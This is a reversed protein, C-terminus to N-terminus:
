EIYNKLAEFYNASKVHHAKGNDDYYCLWGQMYNDFTALYTDTGYIIQGTKTRDNILSNLSDAQMIKQAITSDAKMSNWIFSSSEDNILKKVEDVPAISTMVNILEETKNIEKGYILQTDSKKLKAITSYKDKKRIRECNWLYINPIKKLSKLSEKITFSYEMIFFDSESGLYEVNGIYFLTDIAVLEGLLVYDNEDILQKPSRDIIDGCETTCLYIIPCLICLLILIYINGQKNKM